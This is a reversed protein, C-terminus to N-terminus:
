SKEWIKNTKISSLMKKLLMKILLSKDIFYNNGNILDKFDDIEFPIKKM